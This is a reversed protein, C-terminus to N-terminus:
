QATNVKTTLANLAEQTALAKLDEKTALGTLAEKLDDLTTSKKNKTAM